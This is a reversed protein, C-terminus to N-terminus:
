DNVAVFENQFEEPMELGAFVGIHFDASEQRFDSVERAYGREEALNGDIRGAAPLGREGHEL